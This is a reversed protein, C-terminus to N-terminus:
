LQRLAQKILPLRERPQMSGSVDVLFVLNSPPRKDRAIERGKLGIRVLRHSTAWPCGAVELHAAFPAAKPDDAAPPAYDYRFYNVMEEIRVADKPPLMNQNLFRRVNSY